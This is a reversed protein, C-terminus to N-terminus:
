KKADFEKWFETKPQGANHYSLFKLKPHNRLFEIDRVQKPLVLVELSTCNALIKVDTIKPCDDLILEVLPLNALPSLDKVATRALNLKTLGTMGALPSLDAVSKCGAVSLSRLQLKQVVEVAFERQEAPDISKSPSM